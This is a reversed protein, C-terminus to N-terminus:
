EDQITSTRLEAPLNFFPSQIKVRQEDPYEQELVELDNILSVVEADVRLPILERLNLFVVSSIHVVEFLKAPTRPLFELM